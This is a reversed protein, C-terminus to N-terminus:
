ELGYRSGRHQASEVVPDAEIQNRAWEQKQETTMEDPCYELMLADIKAQMSDIRRLLIGVWQFKLKAKESASDYWARMEATTPETM